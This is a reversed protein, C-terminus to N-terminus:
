ICNWNQIWMVHNHTCRTLHPKFQMYLWTAVSAHVMTGLAGKGDLTHKSLYLCVFFCQQACQHLSEHGLNILDTIDPKLGIGFHKAIYSWLQQTRKLHQQMAKNKSIWSRLKILLMFCTTICSDPKLITYMQKRKVSVVHIYRGTESSGAASGNEGLTGPMKGWCIHHLFSSGSWHIYYCLPCCYVGKSPNSRLTWHVAAQWRGKLTGLTHGTHLVDRQNKASVREM